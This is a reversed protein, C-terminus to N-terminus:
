ILHGVVAHKTRCLAKGHRGVQAVLNCMGTFQINKSLSRQRISTVMCHLVCLPTGVCPCHPRIVNHGLHQTLHLHLQPAAHPSPSGAWTPARSHAYATTPMHAWPLSRGGRPRCLACVRHPRPLHCHLSISTVLVRTTYMHLPARSRNCHLLLPVRRHSLKWPHDLKCPTHTQVKFHLTSTRFITYPRQDHCAKSLRSNKVVLCAPGLACLAACSLVHLVIATVRHSWLGSAETIM